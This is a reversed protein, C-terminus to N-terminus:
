PAPPPSGKALARRLSTRPVGLSRAADAVTHGRQILSEAEHLPIAVGPRGIRRGRRKAALMGAVTRERLLGREYEAFAGRIQMFLRGAPTRTDISDDLSVFDIGLAELEGLVALLHHLSRALRDLKWVLVGDFRRRSADKMLRDLGPRRVRSGSVAEDLYEGVVTFDRVQAYERLGDLQLNVTQEATSCRVYIGVRM